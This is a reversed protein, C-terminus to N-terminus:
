FKPEAHHIKQTPPKPGKKTITNKVREPLYDGFERIINVLYYACNDIDRQTVEKSAEYLLNWAVGKSIGPNVCSVERWNTINAKANEFMEAILEPTLTPVIFKASQKNM